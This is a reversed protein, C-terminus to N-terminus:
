SGSSPRTWTTATARFTSSSGACRGPRRISPWPRTATSPTATPAAPTGRGRKAQATGYYVLRSVPDYAGPDLRRQGRPVAAAPRGLHRRRARGAPRHHVHAVDPARHPRRGRRHLLHGRPVARLRAAGGRGHRRRHGARELVRLRGSRAGRDTDWREEGTRADLGVVHADVTNLIILDEYIALSRLQAAPRLREDMERRYEWIFDGTRADLAQVVNGPNAIYMVGDHVSRPRRRCARSSGGPGSWRLDGVNGQDVQDLPSYGWGDLTRRWNLWDAPDPDQLVADTVPTFDRDQARAPFASAALLVAAIFWVLYARSAPSPM